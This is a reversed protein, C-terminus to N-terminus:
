AARGSAERDGRLRDREEEAELAREAALMYDRTLPLAEQQKALQVQFVAQDLWRFAIEAGALYFEWMRCFREDYLEAALSRNALFRERWCRLTHAYHLRLVEVDTILLAAREVAPALESLAPVYGGPFIYKRIWPTTVGPGDTRGITHLLAVGDSALRDRVCGFFADFHSLGVHEFMGVSVIRDYTGQEERYDRLAFRVQGELGREAARERAVKLQEESLTLGTVEAGLREALWLALGGWGCGIDLVRMGPEIRLKGAIHRRKARQAADLDEGPRAFYACSYQRDEDLFLDYLESSLDYHHAVNRRARHIPNLQQLRRFLRDIRHASRQLPDRPAAAFNRGMLDLFDYLSADEITLTGDTFAEGAYLEPRLFLKWHLAPDHLRITVSPPGGPGFAHVGGGADIVTLQGLRVVRRLFRALLM